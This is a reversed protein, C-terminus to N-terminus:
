IKFYLRGYLNLESKLISKLGFALSGKAAYAALLLFQLNILIYVTSPFILVEPLGFLLGCIIIRMLEGIYIKQYEKFIGANQDRSSFEKASAKFLINFKKVPAAAQAGGKPKASKKFIEPPYDDELEGGLVELLPDDAGNDELDEWDLAIAAPEASETIAAPEEESKKTGGSRIDDFIEGFDSSVNRNINNESIKARPEEKIRPPVSGDAEAAREKVGVATESKENLVSNNLMSQVDDFLAALESKKSNKDM